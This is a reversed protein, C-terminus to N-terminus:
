FVIKLQKEEKGATNIVSLNIIKLLLEEMFM